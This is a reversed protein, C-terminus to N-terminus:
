GLDYRRIKNLLTSRAVGLLRAADRRNGGTHALALAIQRREAAELTDPVASPALASRLAAQDLGPLTLDLMVLDFPPAVRGPEPALAEAALVADDVTLVVHGASRLAAATAQRREADSEILLIHLPQMASFSIAAAPNAM